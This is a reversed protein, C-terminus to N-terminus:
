LYEYNNNNNNNNNNNDNNNDYVNSIDNNTVIFPWYSFNFHVLSLINLLKFCVFM